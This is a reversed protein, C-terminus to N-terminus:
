VSRPPRTVVPRPFLLFSVSTVKASPFPTALLTQSRCRRQVLSAGRERPTVTTTAIAPPPTASMTKTGSPFFQHASADAFAADRRASHLVITGAYQDYVTLSTEVPARQCSLFVSVAAVVALFLVLLVQVPARPMTCAFCPRLLPIASCVGLTPPPTINGVEAVNAFRSYAGKL